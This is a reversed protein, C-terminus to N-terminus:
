SVSLTIISVVIVRHHHPAAATASNFIWLFFRVKTKNAALLSQQKAIVVPIAQTTNSTALLAMANANVTSWIRACVVRFQFM